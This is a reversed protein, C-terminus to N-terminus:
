SNSLAILAKDKLTGSVLEQEVIPANAEENLDPPPANVEVPQVIDLGLDPLDAVPLAAM